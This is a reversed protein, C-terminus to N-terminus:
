RWHDRWRGSLELAGCGRPMNGFTLRSAPIAAAELITVAGIPRSRTAAAVRKATFVDHCAGCARTVSRLHEPTGRDPGILRCLGADSAEALARASAAFEPWRQWVAPLAEGHEDLGGRPFLQPMRVAAASVTEADRVVEADARKSQVREHIRKLMRWVQKMEDMRHKVV